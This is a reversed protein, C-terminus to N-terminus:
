VCSPCPFTIDDPIHPTPFPPMLSILARGAAAETCTELFVPVKGKKNELTQTAGEWRM